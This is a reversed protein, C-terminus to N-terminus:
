ASGLQTSEYGSGPLAHKCAHSPVNCLEPRRLTLEIEKHGNISGDLERDRLQDIFCIPLRCPLEQLVENLDHRVADVRDKRVVSDLKCFLRPVPVFNIGPRHPEVHYTLGIADLMAQGLWVMRPCVALDFAHVPGDRVGSHLSMVVLAVVLKARM